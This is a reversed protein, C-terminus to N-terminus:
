PTHDNKRTETERGQLVLVGQLADIARQLQRDGLMALSKADSQARSDPSAGWWKFVREEQEPTLTAVIDPTVGREHITWKEPTYYKAITLRLATGQPMPIIAQVSGKGFTTEGVIVARHLDQLAGAVLESGSASSHNVLIMLPYNRERQKRSATRYPPRDHARVRGETSVIATEPPVFEGCVDVASNILGGPNNRLDLIFAEMGQDELTDLADRLEGATPKNFQLLRAYGIKRNGTMAADLLMVDKVTEEKIVERLIEVNRMEETAPRKLILKLTEGPSGRLLQVADVIPLDKTLREGIQIIQDGPLVSARAAPGDERVSVISLTGNKPAVAIGVGDYTGEELSDKVQAYLEPYLFQSHPDLSGLMGALAHNVLSAYSVKSEDVYQERVIEMARLLLEVEAYGNDAEEPAATTAITPDEQGSAPSLLALAAVVFIGRCGSRLFNTSLYISSVAAFM